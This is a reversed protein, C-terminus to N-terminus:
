FNMGSKKIHKKSNQDHDQIIWQVLEETEPRPILANPNTKFRRGYFETFGVVHQLPTSARLLKLDHTMLQQDFHIPTNLALKHADVLFRDHLYHRALATVEREEYLNSLENIVQRLLEKAPKLSM